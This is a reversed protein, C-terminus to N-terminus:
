PRVRRWARRARFWGVPHRLAQGWYWCLFRVRPWFLGAAYGGLHDQRERWAADALWRLEEKNLQAVRRGFAGRPLDRVEYWRYYKSM